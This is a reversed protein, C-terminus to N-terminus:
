YKPSLQKNDARYKLPTFGTYEKFTRNFTRLTGFGSEISIDLVSKDTTELLEKAYEVRMSNVYKVFSVKINCSFIAIVKNRSLNLEKAITDISIDEKFHTFVYRIAQVTLDKEFKSTNPKLELLPLTRAIIVGLLYKILLRNEDNATDITTLEDIINKINTPLSESNIIPSAPHFNFLTEKFDHCLSHHCVISFFDIDKTPTKFGHVAYPFIFAFDGKKVTYEGGPHTIILEGENVYILKPSIHMHLPFDYNEKINYIVITSVNHEFFPIM